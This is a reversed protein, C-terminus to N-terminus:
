KCHRHLAPVETELSRRDSSQSIAVEKKPSNKLEETM